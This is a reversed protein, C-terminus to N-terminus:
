LPSQGNSDRPAFIITGGAQISYTFTSKLSGNLKVAVPNGNPDFFDIRGSATTAGANVLGIQTAWGGGYAFQPFIVASAGGVTGADPTDPVAGATLLRTPLPAVIQTEGLAITSFTAGTFTLGLPAFPMTSQLNISGIFSAGIVNPFLDSVFRAIQKYPDITIVVPSGVVTGNADKLTLTIPNGANNPNAIAIGLNRNITVVFEVVASATTTLPPALIGAKSQVTGGQVSGYSVVTTPTNTGSDPTVIIYGTQIIETEVEPIPLPKTTPYPSASAIVSFIVSGSTGGGPSPNAVSINLAGASALDAAPIVASLITSSLFTTAIPTSGVQVISGQIFNSGSVTIATDASGQPVFTPTISALTPVPNGAVAAGTIKRITNSLASSDSVYIIGTSQDVALATPVWFRADSGSGDQTGTQGALGAITSVNQPLTGNGYPVLSVKRITANYYDAVYLNGQSDIALSLRQGFRANTGVGDSSGPNFQGAGVLQQQTGDPNAISIGGPGAVYVVGNSDVVISQISIALNGILKTTGDPLIKYVSSGNSVYLNGAVDVAIPGGTTITGLNITAIKQGGPAYEEIGNANTVYLNGRTDFALGYGTISITTVLGAPTIKRIIHGGTTSIDSVYINGAPDVAISGPGEFRAAAGLGDVSGSTGGLGALTTVNVNSQALLVSRSGFLVALVLIRKLFGKLV